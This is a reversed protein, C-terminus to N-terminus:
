LILELQINLQSIPMKIEIVSFKITHLKLPFNLSLRRNMLLSLFLNVMEDSTNFIELYHDLLADQSYKLRLDSSIACESPLSGITHWYLM